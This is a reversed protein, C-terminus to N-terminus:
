FFRMAAPLARELGPHDHIAGRYFIVAGADTTATIVPGGGDIIAQADDASRQVQAEGPRYLIRGSGAHAEIEASGDVGIAVTGRESEFHAIGNEFTGSDYLISGTLSTVAIQRSHCNTMVINGRGTRLRLRDFASNSAFFAGNNVQVAGTGSDDDLHVQGQNVHVVFANGHFGSIAVSGVRVNVVVLPAQQPVTLTVNGEGRIVYADHDGPAFPPLVFPEPALTLAGEPTQITQSWLMVSQHMRSAVIRPPAHNYRVGPDAVIGVTPRDWTRITASGSRLQVLIFPAGTSPLQMYQAGARTGAGGLLVFLSLLGSLGRRWM